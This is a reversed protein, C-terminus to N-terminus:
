NHKLNWSKLLRNANDLDAAFDIEICHDHPVPVSWVKMGNEIGMEIAREFYDRPACAALKKRLLPLDSRSCFNIGLAEGEPNKVVKSVELMIGEPNTRYKVEEEGVPGKNVVMSTKGAALAADLVSPHFVVDGNLWLVDDDIKNVARLLSKATNEQAYNASYVYLMDPFREMVQEKHYGVVLIIDHLSILKSINEIQFQLISFGNDLLTLPKPLDHDGFRAGFGAALIVVKM